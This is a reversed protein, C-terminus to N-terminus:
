IRSIGRYLDNRKFERVTKLNTGHYGPKMWGTLNYETILPEDAQMRNATKKPKDFSVLWETSSALLTRMAETFSKKGMPKGVPNNRKSWQVFLDYLFQTPLLDWKFEPAMEDWFQMVPNNTQKYDEMLLKSVNPEIYEDFNLHAAKHLVYELVAKRGIYDQKIYKKEGNNTFSKLFPVMILRRYFSDSKDRTKPLGNLMQINAGRFQFPYPKEYKGNIIIDDGTISAKFDRVSDIYQEVDNEDSINALAGVLQSKLFEHRFDSIALSSYNGAGLINKILQGLTGKGNNGSQSYFIIAKGRSYTGQISDSIVQWLLTYVDDDNNALDHLWTEVDWSDGNNDVIVPNQPNDVYDINLKALYVFEPSYEQLEKTDKNFIGNACPILYSKTTPFVTPCVTEIDDIVEQCMIKNAKPEIQKILRKLYKQNATYLGYNQTDYQYVHLLSEQSNISTLVNRFPIITALLVAIDVSDLATPIRKHYTSRNKGHGANELAVYEKKADLASQGLQTIFQSTIPDPIVLDDIIPKLYDPTKLILDDNQKITQNQGMNHIVGKLLFVPDIRGYFLTYKM